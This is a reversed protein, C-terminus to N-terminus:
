ARDSAVHGTLEILKRSLLEINPYDYILTPDVEIHLLSELDGVLGIGSASDVGLLDFNENVDVEASEIGLIDAVYSCIWAKVDVGSWQEDKLDALDAHAILPADGM